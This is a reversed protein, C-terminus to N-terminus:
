PSLIQGTGRYHQIWLKRASRLRNGLVHNRHGGPRISCGRGLFRVSIQKLPYGFSENAVAFEIAVDGYDLHVGEDFFHTAGGSVIPEDDIAARHVAESVFGARFHGADLVVRESIM